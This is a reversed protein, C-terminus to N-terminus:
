LPCDQSQALPGNFVLLSFNKKPKLTDIVVVAFDTAGDSNFDGTAIYPHYDPAAKWKGGYGTKMQQIDDTCDCDTDNAVRYVPHAKIWENIVTQQQPTLTHSPWARAALLSVILFWRLRM